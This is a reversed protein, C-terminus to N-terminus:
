TGDIIAAPLSCGGLHSGMFPLEELSRGALMHLTDDIGNLLEHAVGLKKQIEDLEALMRELPSDALRTPEDSQPYKGPLSMPGVLANAWAKVKGAIETKV